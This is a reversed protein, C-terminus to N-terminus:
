PQFLAEDNYQMPADNLYEVMVNDFHIQGTFGPVATTDAALVFSLLDVDRFTIPVRVRRIAGTTPQRIVQYGFSIFGNDQAIIYADVSNSQAAPTELDASLVYTGPQWYVGTQDSPTTIRSQAAVISGNAQTGDFDIQLWNSDGSEIRTTSASTNVIESTGGAASRVEFWGTANAGTTSSGAGLVGTAGEFNGYVPNGALANAGNPDVYIHKRATGIAVDPRSPIAAVKDAAFSLDEPSVTKYVKANDVYISVPNALPQDANDKNLGIIIPYIGPTSSDALGQASPELYVRVKAWGESATPMSNTDTKSNDGGIDVVSLETFGPTTLALALRPADAATAANSAVDAEFCYVSGAEANVTSNLQIWAGYAGSSGDLQLELAQGSHDGPFSADPTGPASAVVLASIYGNGNSAANSQGVNQVWNNLAPGVTKPNSRTIEGTSATEFGENIDYAPAIVQFGRPQALLSQAVLASVGVWDDSNGGITGKFGVIVPDSLSGTSQLTFNGASDISATLGTVSANGLGSALTTGDTANIYVSEWSPASGM